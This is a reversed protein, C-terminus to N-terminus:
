SILSFINFAFSNLNFSINKPPKFIFNSLIFGQLNFIHTLFNACKVLFGPKQFSPSWNEKSNEKYDSNEESIEM